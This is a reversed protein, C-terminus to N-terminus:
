SNVARLSGAHRGILRDLATSTADDAPLYAVIRQDTSGSIQLSEYALRLEGLEPHRMREIGTYTPLAPPAAFRHRFLEGVAFELENALEAAHPDARTVEGRLRSVLLDAVDDWDPYAQHARADTFHYRLVNPVPQDLLGIPATLHKYGSIYALVDGLRNLVAAPAPEFRDLLTRVNDRVTREPPNTAPCM